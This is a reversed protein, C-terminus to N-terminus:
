YLRGIRAVWGPTGLGPISELYVILHGYFNHEEPAETTFWHLGMTYRFLSVGSEDGSQAPGEDPRLSVYQRVTENAARLADKTRGAHKEVRYIVDYEEPEQEVKTKVRIHHGLYKQNPGGYGNEEHFVNADWRNTDNGTHVSNNCLCNHNDVAVTNNLDLWNIYNYGDHAGNNYNYTPAYTAPVPSGPKPANPKIWQNFRSMRRIEYMAKDTNFWLGNDPGGDAVQECKNDFTLELSPDELHRSTYIPIVIEHGLNVPPDEPDEPELVQRWYPANNTYNGFGLFHILEPFHTVEEQSQWDADGDHVVDHVIINWGPRPTAEIVAQTTCTPWYATNSTYPNIVKVTCFVRTDTVIAGSWECTGDSVTAIPETEPDEPDDDKFYSVWDWRSAEGSVITGTFTGTEGREVPGDQTFDFRWFTMTFSGNTSGVAATVTIQGTGLICIEAIEENTGLEEPEDDHTIRDVVLWYDAGSVTWDFGGPPLESTYTGRALVFRYTQGFKFYAWPYEDPYLRRDRVLRANISSSAEVLPTQSVMLFLVPLACM